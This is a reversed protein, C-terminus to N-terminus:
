PQAFDQYSGQLWQGRGQVNARPGRSPINSGPRRGGGGDGLVSGERRKHMVPKPPGQTAHSAMPKLSSHSLVETM